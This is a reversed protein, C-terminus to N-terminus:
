NLGHSNTFNVVLVLLLALLDGNGCGGHLVKNAGWFEVYGKNGMEGEEQINCDNWSFSFAISRCFKPPCVLHIIPIHFHCIDIELYWNGFLWVYRSNWNYHIMDRFSNEYLQNVFLNHKLNKKFDCSTSSSYVYTLPTLVFM